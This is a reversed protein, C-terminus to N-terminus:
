EVIFRFTYNERNAIFSNDDYYDNLMKEFENLTMVKVVEETFDDTIEVKIM